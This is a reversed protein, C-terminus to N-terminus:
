ARDPENAAPVGCIKCPFPGTHRADYEMNKAPCLQPNEEISLSQGSGTFQM